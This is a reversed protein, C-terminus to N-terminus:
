VLSQAAYLRHRFKNWTRPDQKITPSSRLLPPPVFCHHFPISNKQTHYSSSSESSLSLLGVNIYVSLSMNDLRDHEMDGGNLEEDQIEEMREADRENGSGGMVTEEDNRKHM